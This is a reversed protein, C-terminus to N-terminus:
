GGKPKYYNKVHFKMQATCVWLKKKADYAMRIDYDYVANQELGTMTEILKDFAISHIEHEIKFVKNVEKVM